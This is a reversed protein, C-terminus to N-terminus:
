QRRRRTTIHAGGMLLVLVPVGFITAWFWLKQGDPSHDIKVDEQSDPEGMIADERSLWKLGDIFFQGAVWGRSDVNPPRDSFPAMTGVVMARFMPADDAADQAPIGEIAYAANHVKASESGNLKGNKDEDIFTSSQTRILVTQKGKTKDAVNLSSAWALVMMTKADSLVKVTPHTSYRDTIVFHASRRSHEPDALMGPSKDLGLHGLLDTLPDGEPTTVIFLSGGATAYAKLSDTEDATLADLPDFILVVDADEPVAVSSGQSIGLNKVKFGVQQMASKLKSIKRFPNDKTTSSAERHGTLVYAVREGRSVQLLRKLVDADLKKLKSRTGGKNMDTNMKIKEPTGSGQFVIYGNERINLDEAIQPALAQDHFAVQVLGNSASAVQEFYPRIAEAVENGAPFFLSINVPEPLTEAANLTPEGPRSVRFYATDWELDTYSAMYNVPFVLCLALAATLASTSSRLAAEKPLVHPNNALAIDLFLAPITGIVWLMPALSQFVGKWRQVGSEDLGLVDMVPDLTLGYCFLGVTGISTWVFATQNARARGEDDERSSKYRVGLTTLVFLIGIADLAWRTTGTGFIREGAFILAGALLWLISIRIM